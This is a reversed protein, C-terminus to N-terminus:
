SPPPPTSCTGLARSSRARSERPSSASKWRRRRTTAGEVMCSDGPKYVGWISGTPVAADINSSGDIPDFCVIYDGSLADAVGVPVDEEETVIVASRATDAM